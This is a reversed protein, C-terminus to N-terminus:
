KFFLKRLGDAIIPICLAQGVASWHTGDSTTPNTARSVNATNIGCTGGLDIVPYGYAGAVDKVAQRIQEQTVTTDIASSAQGPTKKTPTMFAIKPGYSYAALKECIAKLAGYVTSTDTSDMNGLPSGYVYDNIGGLITIIDPNDPFNVENVIRYCISSNEGAVAASASNIALSCGSIGRRYLTTIGLMKRVDDEYLDMQTISDGYCVWTKKIQPNELEEIDARIEALADPIPKADTYTITINSQAFTDADAITTETPYNYLSLRYKYQNSAQITIVGNSVTLANHTQDMSNYVLNVYYNNFTGDAKYEFVQLQVAQSIEILSDHSNDLFGVTRIRTTSSNDNGTTQSIKGLEFGGTYTPDSYGVFDELTDVTEGLTEVTEQVADVTENLTNVTGALTNVTGGLTNVTGGLINVTGELMDVTGQVTDVDTRLESLMESIPKVDTYEITVNAAIFADADTITAETPYNFWELRYKYQASAQITIVGNSVTLANHTQDMSNYVLNVYYSNFTGDALYEFVKMQVAQSIDIRSNHTNDLYTVTRVRSTSNNDNGTTQSIRGLEYGGSYTQDMYGIYDEISDIHNNLEIFRAGFDGALSVSVTDTGTWSGAAHDATFRYLAGVNDVLGPYWVYQGATYATSSSFSPAVGALLESYDAPISEVATNIRTILANVSSIVTGPDIPTDTETQEATFRASLVTTVTEGTTLKVYVRILGPVALAAQELTVTVINGSIAGTTIPVTQGRCNIVTGSVTGGGAYPEGNDYLYVGIKESLNDLTFVIDECHHTIRPKTLDQHFIKKFQAMMM